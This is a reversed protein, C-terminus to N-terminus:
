VKRRKIQGGMMFSPNYAAPSGRVGHHVNGGSEM